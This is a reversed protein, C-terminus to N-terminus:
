LTGQFKYADDWTPHGQDRQSITLTDVLPWNIKLNPSNWMVGCEETANHYNDVKYGVYTNPELTIFGHYFVRPVFVMSPDDKTLTVGCTQGYTPSDLRADVLVDYISGNLVSVLKAQPQSSTQSHLGRLTGAAESFSWFEFIFNQLDLHEDVWSQRFTETFWGRNDTHRNLKFLKADKLPLDEVTIM